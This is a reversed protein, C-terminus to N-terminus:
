RFSSVRPVDRELVTKRDSEQAKEIARDCLERIHDSLIAAVADATKMGAVDRIYDKVKSVVVLVEPPPASPNPTRRTTAAVTGASTTPGSAGAIIRRPTRAQAPSVGSPTASSASSSSAAAAAAARAQEVSPSKEEVAWADRHRMVPVHADWCSTSCFALGTRKRNCTSVSCVWYVQQFGIDQKCVSCRRWRSSDM